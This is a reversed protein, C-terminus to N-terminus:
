LALGEDSAEVPRCDDSRVFGGSSRRSGGLRASERRRGLPRRRKRYSEVEDGHGLMWTIAGYVEELTLEPYQSRIGEPSHGAEWAHLVSALSVDSGGVKLETSGVRRVYDNQAAM